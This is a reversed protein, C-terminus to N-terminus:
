GFTTREPVRVIFTTRGEQSVEIGGRLQKVMLNIIRMGFGKPSSLDFDDPLGVGDDSVSLVITGEKRLFDVVLRGTRGGTFAYKFANTVLENLLIGWAAADKAHATINEFHHEV